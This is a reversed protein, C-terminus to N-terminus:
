SCCSNKEKGAPKCCCAQSKAKEEMKKDLKAFLRSFLQKAKSIKRGEVKKIMRGGKLLKAAVVKLGSQKSISWVM